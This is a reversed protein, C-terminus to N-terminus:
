MRLNSKTLLKNESQYLGEQINFRQVSYLIFYAIATPRCKDEITKDYITSLLTM